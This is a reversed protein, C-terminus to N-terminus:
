SVGRRQGHGRNVLKGPNRLHLFGDDDGYDVSPPRPWGGYTFDAENDRSLFGIINTRGLVNSPLRFTKAKKSGRLVCLFTKM